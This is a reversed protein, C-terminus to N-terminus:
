RRRLESYARYCEWPVGARPLISGLLDEVSMSLVPPAAGEDTESRARKRRGHGHRQGQGQRGGGRAPGGPERSDFVEEDSKGAAAKGSSSCRSSLGAKSLSAEGAAVNSLAPDAKTTSPGDCCDVRGDEGDEPDGRARGTSCGVNAGVQEHATNDEKGQGRRQREGVDEVSEPRSSCTNAEQGDDENTAGTAPSPKAAPAEPVSPNPFPHVALM